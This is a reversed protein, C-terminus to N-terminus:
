PNPSDWKKDTGWVRRTKLNNWKNIFYCRILINFSNHNDYVENKSCRM